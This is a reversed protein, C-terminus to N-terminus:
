NVSIERPVENSFIAQKHAVLAQIQNDIIEAKSYMEDAKTVLKLHEAVLKEIQKDIYKAATQLHNTM